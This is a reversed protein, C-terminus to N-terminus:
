GTLYLLAQYAFFATLLVGGELRNIRRPTRFRYAMAFLALTLVLM